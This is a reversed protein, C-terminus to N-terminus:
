RENTLGRWLDALCIAGGKLCSFRAGKMLGSPKKWLKWNTWFDGSKVVSEVFRQFKIDLWGASAVCVRLGGRSSGAHRKTKCYRKFNGSRASGPRSFPLHFCFVSFDHSRMPARACDINLAPTHSFYVNGRGDEMDNLFVCRNNVFALPLYRKKNKAM